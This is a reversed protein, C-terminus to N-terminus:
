AQGSEANKPNNDKGIEVEPKQDRRITRLAEIQLAMLEDSELTELEEVTIIDPEYGPQEYKQKLEYGENLIVLLRTVKDITELTTGSNLVAALNEIKGEPCLAAVKKAAGITMSFKREKGHIKM